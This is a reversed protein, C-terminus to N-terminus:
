HKGPPKPNERGGKANSLAAELQQTRKTLAELAEPSMTSQDDKDKYADKGKQWQRGKEKDWRQDWKKGGGGQKSKTAKAMKAALKEEQVVQQTLLRTEELSYVEETYGSSRKAHKWDMHLLHVKNLCHLEGEVLALAKQLPSLDAWQLTEEAGPVTMVTEEHASQYLYGQLQQLVQTHCKDSIPADKPLKFHSLAPRPSWAKPVSGMTGKMPAHLDVLNGTYENYVYSRTSKPTAKPKINSFGCVNCFPQHRPMQIGCQPCPVIASQNPTSKGCNMCFRSYPEHQRGCGTCKTSYISKAHKGKGCKPCFRGQEPYHHGCACAFMHRDPDIHLQPGHADSSSDGDESSPSEDDEDKPPPEEEQWVSQLQLVTAILEKFSLMSEDSVPQLSTSELIHKIVDEPNHKSQIIAAMLFEVRALLTRRIPVTYQDCMKDILKVLNPAKKLVPLLAKIPDAWELTLARVSPLIEDVAELQHPELAFQPVDHKNQKPPM